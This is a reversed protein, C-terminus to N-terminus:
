DSPLQHFCRTPSARGLHGPLDDPRRRVAASRLRHPRSLSHLQRGRRHRGVHDAVAHRAGVPGARYAVGPRHQHPHDHRSLDLDCRGGEPHSQCHDARRRLQRTYRDSEEADRDLRRPLLLDGSARLVAPDPSATGLQDAPRADLAATRRQGDAHAADARARNAINRARDVPRPAQLAPNGARAYGAGQPDEGAGAGGLRDGPDPDFRDRLLRVDPLDACVFGGLAQVPNRAARVM